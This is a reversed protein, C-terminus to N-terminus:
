LAAEQALPVGAGEGVSLRCPASGRSRTHPLGCHPLKASLLSPCSGSFCQPSHRATLCLRCAALLAAFPFSIGTGTKPAHVQRVVRRYWGLVWCCGSCYGRYRVLLEARGLEWRVHMRGMVELATYTSPLVTPTRRGGRAAWLRLCQPLLLLLPLPLSNALWVSFRTDKSNQRKM